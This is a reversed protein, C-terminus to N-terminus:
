LGADRLKREVEADSEEANAAASAKHNRTAAYEAVSPRYYRRGTGKGGNDIIPKGSGKPGAMRGVNVPTIGIIDAAQQRPIWDDTVTAPPANSAEGNGHQALMRILTPANLPILDARHRGGAILEAEVNAWSPREPNADPFVRRLTALDAATPVYVPYSATFAFGGDGTSHSPTPRYDFSSGPEREFNLDFYPPSPRFPSLPKSPWAISNSM